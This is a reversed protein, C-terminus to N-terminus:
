GRSWARAVASLAASYRRTREPETDRISPFFFYGRAGVWPRYQKLVRAGFEAGYVLKYAPKFKRGIRQSGGMWLTPGSQVIEIPIITPQRPRGLAKAKLKAETRIMRAGDLNAQRLEKPIVGLLRTTALVLRASDKAGRIEVRFLPTPLTM